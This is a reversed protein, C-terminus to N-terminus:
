NKLINNITNKIRQVRESDLHEKKDIGSLIIELGKKDIYNNDFLYIMLNEEELTAALTKINYNQSDIMVNEVIRTIERARKTQIMDKKIIKKFEAKLKDDLMKKNIVGFFSLSSFIFWSFLSDKRNIMKNREEECLMIFDNNSFGKNDFNKIKINNVRNQVVKEPNKYNFLLEM